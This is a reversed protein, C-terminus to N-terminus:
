REHRPELVESVAHREGARTPGTDLHDLLLAGIEHEAIEAQGIVHVPDLYTPAHARKRECTLRLHDRQGSPAAFLIAPARTVGPEVLMEDLRHGGVLKAVRQAYRVSGLDSWPPSPEEGRQGSVGRFAGHDGLAITHVGSASGCVCM